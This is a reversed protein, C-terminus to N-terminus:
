RRILSAFFDLHARAISPWAYAEPVDPRDPRSGSALADLAQRLSAPDGYRYLAIWAPFDAQLARAERSDALVLPTGLSLAFFVPGSNDFSPQPVLVAGAGAVLEAAEADDLREDRWRARPTAAVAQRLVGAPYAPGAKGAILLDCPLDAAAFVPLLAEIRKYPRVNGFILLVPAGDDRGNAEGKSLHTYFGHRAILSPRARWWPRAAAKDRSLETLFVHGDTARAWADRWLRYPPQVGDHPEVNHVTQVLPIGRLKATAIMALGRVAKAYGKVRGPATLMTDPWHVHAVAPKRARLLEIPTLPRLRAAMSGYLLELYSNDPYREPYPSTLITLRDESRARRM